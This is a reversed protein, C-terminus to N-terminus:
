PGDNSVVARDNYAAQVALPIRAHCLRNGACIVLDMRSPIATDAKEDEVEYCFEPV